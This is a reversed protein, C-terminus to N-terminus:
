STQSLLTSLDLNPQVPVQWDTLTYFLSPASLEYFGGQILNLNIFGTADSICEVYDKTALMTSGPSFPFNSVLKARFLINPVPNGSADTLYCYCACLNPAPATPQFTVCNITITANGTVTLAYPQSPFTIFSKFFLVNFAGTPLGLVLKGNTDTIGVALTIQNTQNKITVKVGPIPNSLQDLFIFTIQNSGAIPQIITLINTLDTEIAALGSLLTSELAMNDEIEEVETAVSLLTNQSAIDSSDIKISPNVLLKSAVASAIATVNVNAVPNAFVIEEVASGPYSMSANTYYAVYTEQTNDIAQNFNISYLGPENVADVQLMPVHVLVSTFTTGNWYLLDSQRQLIVTPSQGIVGIGTYTILLQLPYVSGIPLTM